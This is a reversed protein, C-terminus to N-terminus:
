GNFFAFADGGGPAPATPTPEDTDIWLAGVAPDPTPADPQEFVLVAGAPGPPGAPGVEGGGGGAFDNPGEYVPVYADGTEDLVLLCRAGAQPLADGRPVWHGAPVLYDHDYSYGQSIVRLTEEASSPTVVVRGRLASTVSVRGTPSSPANILQSIDPM